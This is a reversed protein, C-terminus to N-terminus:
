IFDTESLLHDEPLDRSIKRGVWKGYEGAPLGTGPKKFALDKKELVQGAKLARATVLSKQFIRKMERYAEVQSKDVPAHLMREIERIACVMASFETPEMSHPADSGYMGRSFTLHKEIITAGMTVAAVPAALGLTHDSLGFPVGYRKKIQPLVNLGVREPPCPYVTSCQLISLSSVGKLAAVAADLETWDCMGSSLIVPRGTAAIKELLPINTVEGSPIKYIPMGISELLDVAELSFPSSLFLIDQEDAHQKLKAWQERSFGTRRFYDMRPEGKFYPPSPANPLSEAEPLHTQFKVADAGAKKALEILKCANGFSGDHVSGAEAIILVSSNM